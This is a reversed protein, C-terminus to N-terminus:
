IIEVFTFVEDYTSIDINNSTITNSMNIVVDNTTNDVDWTLVGSVLSLDANTHNDEARYYLQIADDTLSFDTIVDSGSTATFQFTDAGADGTLTDNGAGGNITDDGTGGDITDDGNSSWLVDNGAEGNIEITNALIYNSSTLDVIDNGEGANIVELNTIRATSNVGQTTTSLTLSSHHASYIDDIFFADNGTTLNLTDVDAGGDIVDSFRSLGNLSIAQSTGISTNTDVNKAIYGSSWVSDIKLFISDNGSDGNLNNSGGGVVILDYGGGANVLDDGLGTTILDVGDIGTIDNNSDNGMIENVDVINIAINYNEIVNGKIAKITFNFQHDNGVDVPVEYDSSFGTSNITFGSINQDSIYFSSADAGGSIEFSFGDFDDNTPHFVGITGFGGGNPREASIGSEFVDFVFTKSPADYSVQPDWYDGGTSVAKSLINTGVSDIYGFNNSYTTILDGNDDLRETIFIKNNNEDKYYKHDHSLQEIGWFDVGENTTDHFRVLGTEDVIETYISTANGYEDVGDSITVTTNMTINGASDKFVRTSHIDTSNVYTIEIVKEVTVGDSTYKTVVKNGNTDKLVKVNLTGDLRTETYVETYTEGDSEYTKIQRSEQGAVAERISIKEVLVGEADYKSIKTHTFEPQSQSLGYEVGDVTHTHIRTITTGNLDNDETQKTKVTGNESTFISINDGNSNVGTTSEWRVVQNDYTEYFYYHENVRNHNSNYDWEAVILGNYINDIDNIVRSGTTNTITELYILTEDDKVQVVDYHIANGADLISDKNTLSEQLTKVISKYVYGGNNSYEYTKVQTNNIYNYVNSYEYGPESNLYTKIELIDNTNYQYKSVRSDIQNVYIEVYSGDDNFDKSLYWVVGDDDTHSENGLLSYSADTISYISKNGANYPAVVPLSSTVVDDSLVPIADAYWTNDIEVYVDTTMLNLLSNVYDSYDVEGSSEIDEQTIEGSVLDSNISDLLEIWLNAIEAAVRPTAFSTGFNWGSDWGAHEVYGNAYIDIVSNNDALGHLSDGELDVNYAAVEIVDDYIEAWTVGSSTVNPISQVIVAFNDVLTQIAYSNSFSPYVGAYSFSLAIPLYEVANTDNKVLWDNVISDVSITAFDLQNPYDCDILITEVDSDLQNKFASVVWDGHQVNLNGTSEHAVWELYDYSYANYGYIGIFSNSNYYTDAISYDVASSVETYVLSGYATTEVWDADGYGDIWVGDLTYYDYSTVNNIYGADYLTTNSFELSRSTFDDMIIVVPKYTIPM